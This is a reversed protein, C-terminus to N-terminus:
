ILKAPSGTSNAPARRRGKPVEGHMPILIPGKLNIGPEPRSGIPGNVLSGALM